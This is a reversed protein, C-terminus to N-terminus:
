EATKKWPRGAAAWLAYACKEVFYFDGRCWPVDVFSLLKEPPLDEVFTSTAMLARGLHPPSVYNEGGILREAFAMHWASRAERFDGSRARAMGGSLRDVARAVEPALGSYRALKAIHLSKSASRTPELINPNTRELNVRLELLELAKAKAKRGTDGDGALGALRALGVLGALDENLREAEDKVYQTSTIGFPYPGALVPALREKLAPWAAKAAAADGSGRCWLWFAYVGFAGNARSRGGLRLGDPVDYAERPNGARNDYGDATYPPVTALQGALFKRVAAATELKLHPLAISLSYFMEDPHNFYAEYGSIGLTNHFAKWPFGAVFEAVHADLKARVRDAEAGAARAAFDPAEALLADVDAASLKVAEAKQQAPSDDVVNQSRAPAAACAAVLFALCAIRLITM